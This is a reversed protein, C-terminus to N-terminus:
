AYAAAAAGLSLGDVTCNLMYGVGHITRILPEGAPSFGLKRRLRSVSTDLSRLNPGFLGLLESLRERTIAQEPHELFVLLLKLDGPTLVSCEGRPSQVQLKWPRLTWGAFRVPAPRVSMTPEPAAASGCRAGRRLVARIRALLERQSCSPSVFDDAGVELGVIRDIEQARDSVLIVRAGDQASLRRCFDLGAEGGRLMQLVVLDAPAEDLRAGAEDTDAALSVEFGHDKMYASLEARWDGEQGVLLLRVGEGAPVARIAM